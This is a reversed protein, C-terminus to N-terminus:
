AYTVKPMIKAFLKELVYGQIKEEGCKENWATHVSGDRTIEFYCDETSIIRDVHAIDSYLDLCFVPSSPKQNWEGVFNEVARAAAEGCTNDRVFFLFPTHFSCLDNKWEWSLIQGYTKDDYTFSVGYLNKENELRQVNKDFGEASSNIVVMVNGTERLKQAMDKSLEESEIFLLFACDNHRMFLDLLDSLRSGRELFAYSYVGMEKGQLIINASQAESLADEGEGLRNLFIIWPINYGLERENKRITAAGITWSNFGINEGFCKICRNDVQNALNFVLDYYQSEDNELMDHAVKFFENQFKGKAYLQGLDVLRRVDRKSNKKIEKLTEDIVTEVMMRRAKDIIRMRRGDGNM